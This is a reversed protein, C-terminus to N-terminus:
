GPLHLSNTVFFSSTARKNSFGQTPKDNRHGFITTDFFFLKADRDVVAWFKALKDVVAELEAM